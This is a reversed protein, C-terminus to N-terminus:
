KNLSSLDQIMEKDLKAKLKRVAQTYIQQVRSESLGMIKAIELFTM